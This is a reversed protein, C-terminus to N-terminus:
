TGTLKPRLRNRVSVAPRTATWRICRTCLPWIIFLYLVVVHLCQKLEVPLPASTGGDIRLAQGARCAVALIDTKVGGLADFRLRNDTHNALREALVVTKDIETAMKLRETKGNGADQGHRVVAHAIQLGVQSATREILREFAAAVTTAVVVLKLAPQDPPGDAAKGLELHAPGLPQIEDAALRRRREIM